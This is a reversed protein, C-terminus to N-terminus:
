CDTDDDVLRINKAIPKGNRESVEFEYREGLEPFLEADSFATVHVFLDEGDDDPRLFGYGRDHRYRELIGTPM